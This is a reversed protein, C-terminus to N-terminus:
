DSQTNSFYHCWLDLSVSALLIQDQGSEDLTLIIFLTFTSTYFISAKLGSFSNIENIKPIIVGTNPSLRYGFPGQSHILFRLFSDVYDKFTVNEFLHISNKYFGM